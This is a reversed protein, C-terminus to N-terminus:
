MFCTSSARFFLQLYVIKTGGVVDLPCLYYELGFRTRKEAILNLYLTRYKRPQVSITEKKKIVNRIEFFISFLIAELKQEMRGMSFSGM